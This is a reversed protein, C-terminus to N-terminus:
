SDSFPNRAQGFPEQVMLRTEVEMCGAPLRGVVRVAEGGTFLPAFEPEPHREGRLLKQLAIYM